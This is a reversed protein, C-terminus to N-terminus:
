ILGFYIMVFYMSKCAIFMLKKHIYQWISSSAFTAIFKRKSIILTSFLPNADIENGMNRKQM